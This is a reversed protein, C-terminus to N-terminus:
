PLLAVEVERGVHDQLYVAIARNVVATISTSHDAAVAVLAQYTSDPCRCYIVHQKM